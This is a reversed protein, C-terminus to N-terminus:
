TWVNLVCSNKESMEAESLQRGGTQQMAQPGWHDCARVGKWKKVPLPPMCREVEAYPIGLYAFTGEQVIGSVKGQKTSVVAAKNEQALTPAAVFTLCM